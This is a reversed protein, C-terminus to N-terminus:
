VQFQNLFTDIEKKLNMLHENSADKCMRKELTFSTQDKIYHQFNNIAVLKEAFDKMQNRIIYNKSIKTSLLYNKMSNFFKKM